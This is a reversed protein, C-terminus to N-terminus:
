WARAAARPAVWDSPGHSSDAETQGRERRAACSAVSPAQADVPAQETGELRSRSAYIGVCFGAGEPFVYVEDDCGCGAGTVRRSCELRLKLRITHLRGEGIRERQGRRGDGVAGTSETVGHGRIGCRRRSQMTRQGRQAATQESAALSQMMGAGKTLSSRAALGRM